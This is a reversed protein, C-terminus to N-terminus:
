FENCSTLDSTLEHAEDELNSEMSIKQKAKKFEDWMRFISKGPTINRGIKKRNKINLDRNVCAFLGM